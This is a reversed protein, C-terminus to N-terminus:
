AAKESPKASGHSGAEIPIERRQPRQEGLPVDIELVGNEFVAHAQDAKASEPLPIARYLRGYRRETMHMGGQEEEREVQREGHLVIANDAIEVVVDDPKIGPLEARVVYKGDRESIEIAPVWSVTGESGRSSSADGLVRDMEETIRRMLSFPSARFFDSATLVVAPPHRRRRGSTM